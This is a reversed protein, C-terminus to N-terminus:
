WSRDLRRPSERVKPTERLVTALQSLFLELRQGLQAPRQGLRVGVVVGLGGGQLQVFQPREDQFFRAFAPNPQCQAALRALHDSIEDSVPALPTAALQPLPYWLSIAAPAAVAVEPFRILLDDGFFLMLRHALLASLRRMDLPPVVGQTLPKRTEDSLAQRKGLRLLHMLDAQPKKQM